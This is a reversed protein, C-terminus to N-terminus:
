SNPGQRDGRGRESQLNHTHVHCGAPIGASARGIMEGYKIVAEGARLASLAFKHGRPIAGRVRVEVRRGGQDLRVRSGAAIDALATAVNDSPHIVIARAESSAM